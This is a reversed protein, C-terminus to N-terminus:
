AMAVEDEDVVLVLIGDCIAGGVAVRGRGECGGCVSEVPFRDQWGFVV